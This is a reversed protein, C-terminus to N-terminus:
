PFVLTSAIEKCLVSTNEPFYIRGTYGNISIHNRKPASFIEDKKKEWIGKSNMIQKCNKNEKIVFYLCTVCTVSEILASPKAM